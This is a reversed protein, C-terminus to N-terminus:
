MEPPQLRRAAQIHKRLNKLAGANNPYLRTRVFLTELDLDSFRDFGMSRLAVISYRLDQIAEMHKKSPGKLAKRLRLFFHKDNTLEARALRDTFTQCGLSARDVEVAHFLSDEDGERACQVLHGISCHFLMISLINRQLVTALWIMYKNKNEDPNAELLRDLESADAFLNLASEQPDDAKALAKVPEQLGAWVILTGIQQVFPLEYLSAWNHGDSGLFEGLRKPNSRMVDALEGRQKRLEPLTRVLRRFQDPTLKGFEKEIPM